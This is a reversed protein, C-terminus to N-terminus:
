LAPLTLVAVSMPPLAFSLDGQHGTVDLPRVSVNSISGSDFASLKELTAQPALPVFWPPQTGTHADAAAGALVRAQLSGSPSFNRVALEVAAASYPHKNWVIVSLTKGDASKGAIAEIYSVGSAAPVCGVSVTDFVPSESAASVIVPGLDRTFMRMVHYSAKPAFQGNRNGIWGMFLGDSMHFANTIETQSSELFVKLASAAFVASAMTKTHEAFRNAYSASFYPGWETVAIKIVGARQPAYVSVKSSIGDLSRRIHQPAALMSMYASLTSLGAEVEVGPAYSNHVALFDIEGAAQRLLTETWGPYDPCDLNSTSECAIAGIKIRSDAKKMAKSFQVVKLAYAEPSMTVPAFMSGNRVYLENGIEWYRVKLGKKNVYRVWDAAMEPTGTGANVTILLEGGVDSAFRLAEDTGFYPKDVAGEPMTQMVPRGSVPGIAQRWDYYDAMIGGPFRILKVNLDHVLASAAPDSRNGAADWLGNANHVWEVNQGYFTAPVTRIVSGADASIRATFPSPVADVQPRASPWDQPREDAAYLDDFHATGSGEMECTIVTFLVNAGAPIVLEDRVLVPSASAPQRIQVQHVSGDSRYALATLVAKSDGSASLWGGVYLTKGGSADFPLAQGVGLEPKKWISAGAAPSWSLTLSNLGSRRGSSSVRVSGELTQSNVMWSTPYQGALQEFGPNSLLNVQAPASSLSLALGILAFTYRAYLHMNM